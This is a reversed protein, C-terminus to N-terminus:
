PAGIVAPLEHVWVLYLLGNGANRLAHPVGAPFYAADSRRLQVNRGDQKLIARGRAVVYTESHSHAHEVHSNGPAIVTVGLAIRKNIIADGANHNVRSTTGAVWNASWRL